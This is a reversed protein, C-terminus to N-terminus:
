FVNGKTLVRLVYDKIVPTFFDKLETVSERTESIFDYNVLYYATDDLISSKPIDKQKLIESDKLTVSFNTIDVDYSKPDLMRAIRYEVRFDVYSYNIRLVWTPDLPRQLYIRGLKYDIAYQGNNTTNPPDYFYTIEGPSDEDVTTYVRVTGYTLSSTVTDVFYKGISNVASFSGVATTFLSTNSFTVGNSLSSTINEKLDFEAYTGETELAEIAETTKITRSGLVLPSGTYDVEKLFPDDTDDITAGDVDTLNFTYTGKVTSLKSVDIITEYGSITVLEDEIEITKWASEKISISDRLINTTGWNWDEVSLQYIPQYTYNVSIDSDSPTPTALYIIGKDTDISWDEPNILEDRGNVFTKLSTSGLSTIKSTITSYDTITGNELHIVTAKRPLIESASEEEDYRKITVDNKNNSTSFELKAIHNDTTESPFLTEAEFYYGIPSTASPAASTVGDGFEIVGEELDFHYVKASSDNYSSLAQTAQTWEKGGVEVHLWESAPAPEVHWISGGALTKKIPRPLKQFPIRFKRTDLGDLAHGLIYQSEPRGRSGFLPDIVVISDNLPANILELVFPADGPVQHTETTNKTTKNLSSVGEVFQNDNRRLTAKVRLSSVPVSTNITDSSAGNFELVEPISQIGVLGQFKKPQIEYWTSGDDPSITWKIEALESLQNPNQNSELLVKRIEDNSVFRTSVFEGDTKYRFANIEIDRIGIAYRLRDGVPTEIIYPESQKFICHVYKVKRPTFTYLGQGAFKSTSPALIFINEEDEESFGAIPIDDKISTYTKGDLSTELTDIKITTKTGFNNPNIRIHNIVKEEGLNITVDLILPDQDDDIQKVVREYEFWTDANSDILDSVDGNFKAGLQQNNGSTGNSNSNIIPPETVKISSDQDKDIPLTIVGEVQNIECEDKNLLSSGIDIKSVDNFSDKFYISDHNPNQSYLIYDGVLSSVTKLRATLRNTETVVFNFNALTLQEVNELETFITILDDLVKNWLYNYLNSDPLDDQHILQLDSETLRPETLDMYFERLVNVAENIYAEKTQLENSGLSGQLKNSINALKTKLLTSREEILFKNAPM